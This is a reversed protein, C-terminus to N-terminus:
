SRLTAKIRLPNFLLEIGEHINRVIINANEMVKSSIGEGGIVGIGLASNKLMGADNNGNGFCVVTKQDLNEVFIRKQETENGATLIHINFPYNALEKKVRNFTDATLIHVKLIKNLEQLENLVNKEPFGDKALTGNYDFVAHELNLIGFNFIEIKM